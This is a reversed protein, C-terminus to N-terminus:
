RKRISRFLTEQREKVLAFMDRGENDRSKLDIKSYACLLKVISTSDRTAAVNLPAVDFLCRLNVNTDVCNLLLKVISIHKYTVTVCLPTECSSNLSNVNIDARNLLLKVTSINDRYTAVHLSTEIIIYIHENLLHCASNVNVRNESLLFKM